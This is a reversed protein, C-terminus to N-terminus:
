LSLRGAIESRMLAIMEDIKAFSDIDQSERHVKELFDSTKGSDFLISGGGADELLRDIMISGQKSLYAMAIERLDEILEPLKEKQLGVDQVPQPPKAEQPPSAALHAAAADWLKALNLMQLLDQLMLEELPKTACVYLRAGPLSAVRRSEDPSTELAPADDHHFGFAQGNKYFILAHREPTSFRVVGNLEQSKLRALVNKIDVQRVEDGNILRAGQILAHACMALDATMRYVNVTGGTRLIKDFMLVIAEFGTKDKADQETCVAGILKGSAFLCSAEFLLSTYTVCGTFGGKGLKDLMDPLNIRKVSVHEYLPNIKPLFHM